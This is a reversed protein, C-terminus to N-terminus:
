KLLLTRFSMYKYISTGAIVSMTEPIGSGDVHPFNTTLVVALLGLLFSLGLAMMLSLTTNQVLLGFTIGIFYGQVWHVVVGLTSVTFALVVLLLYYDLQHKIIKEFLREKCTSGARPYVQGLDNLEDFHMVLDTVILNPREESTSPEPTELREYLSPRVASKEMSHMMEDLQRDEMLHM